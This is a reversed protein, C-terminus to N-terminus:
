EGSPYPNTVPVQNHRMQSRSTSGPAVGLVGDALNSPPSARFTPRAAKSTAVSQKGAQVQEQQVKGLTDCSLNVKVQVQDLRQSQEELKADLAELRQCIEAAGALKSQEARM